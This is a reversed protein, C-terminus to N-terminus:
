VIAVYLIDPREELVGIQQLGRKQALQTERIHFLHPFECFASSPKRVELTCGRQFM